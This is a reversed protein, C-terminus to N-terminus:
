KKSRSKRLVLGLAHDQFRTIEEEDLNTNHKLYAFYESTGMMMYAGLLSNIEERIVGAQKGKELDRVLPQIIQNMVEQLKKAFVSQKVVAAGRILNMMDAWQPYYALYAKWRKKLRKAIDREERIGEWVEDYMERFIREACEIFLLEKNRFNLYFTDKGVAAQNVIDNVSTDSFGKKRFLDIAARIIVERRSTNLRDALGATLDQDKFEKDVIEKIVRLSSNKKERMQKRIFDLRERHHESYYARTRGMKIPPPLLGQRVYFRITSPPTGTERALESIKM